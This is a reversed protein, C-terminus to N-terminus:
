APVGPTMLNPNILAPPLTLPGTTGQRNKDVRAKLPLDAEGGKEVNPNFLGIFVTAHRAPQDSDAAHHKRPIGDGEEIANRNAQALFVTHHGSRRDSQRAIQVLRGLQFRRELREERGDWTMHDLNEIVSLRVGRAAKLALRTRLEFQNMDPSSDDIELPLTNLYADAWTLRQEVTERPRDGRPPISGQLILGSKLSLGALTHVMRERIQYASADALVDYHTLHGQIAARLAMNIGLATKAHGQAGCIIVTEGDKDSIPLGGWRLFPALESGLDIVGDPRSQMEKLHEVVSQIQSVHQYGASSTTARSVTEVLTSAVTLAPLTTLDTRAQDMAAQVDRKRGQEAVERLGLRLNELPETGRIAQLTRGAGPLEVALSNYGFAHGALLHAHVTEALARVDEHGWHHPRVEALLEAARACADDDWAAARSVIGALVQHTLPATM